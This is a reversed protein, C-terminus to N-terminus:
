EDQMVMQDDKITMGPPVIMTDCRCNPHIPWITPLWERKKKGVNTGNGLLERVEFIRPNATPGFLRICDPCAGSEHIRAILVGEGWMDLGNLIRADNHAGQLETRAIRMWNHAYNQTRNAMRGALARADRSEITERATEERIVDLVKARKEPDVESVIREEEWEEVVMHGLDIGMEQGLGRAFEGARTSAQTHAHIEGPTLGPPTVPTVPAKTSPPVPPRDVSTGPVGVYVSGGDFAPPNEELERRAEVMRDQVIPVWEQIGWNRMERIADLDTHNDGIHHNVHMLFEFYDADTGSVKLGSLDPYTILGRNVLDSIRRQSLGSGREGLLEILFADHHDLVLNQAVRAIYDRGLSSV